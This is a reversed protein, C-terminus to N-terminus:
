DGQSSGAGRRHVKAKGNFVEQWAIRRFSKDRRWALELDLEVRALMGSTVLMKGDMDQTIAIAVARCKDAESLRMFDEITM